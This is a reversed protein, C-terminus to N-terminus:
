MVPSGPVVPLTAIAEFPSTAQITPLAVIPSATQITPLAVIPSATQVTPLAVIPSTAQITPLAVGGALPSATLPIGPVSPLAVGTTLPVPVQPAMVQTPVPVQPAMVQTPVPVQPAMGLQAGPLGLQAGPLGLQTPPALHVQQQVQEVAPHLIRQVLEEKKGGVKQLMEKLIKKLETVKLVRLGEATKPIPVAFPKTESIDVLQAMVGPYRDTAGYADLLSSIALSLTQDATRVASKLVELPNRSPKKPDKTKPALGGQAIVPVGTPVHQLTQVPNVVPAAVQGYAVQLRYVLDAKKGGLKLSHGQANMARIHDKLQTITLQSFDYNQSM